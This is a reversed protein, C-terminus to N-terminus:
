VFVETVLVVQYAVILIRAVNRHWLHMAPESHSVSASAVWCWILILAFVRSGWAFLPSYTGQFWAIWSLSWAATYFVLMLWGSWEKGLVHVTTRGRELDAEMDEINVGFWRGVEFLWIFVCLPIITAVDGYIVAGSFPVMASGITSELQGVFPIFKGQVSYHTTLAMMFVLFLGMWVSLVFGIGIGVGFEVTAVAYAPGVGVLGSPVPRYPKNVADVEADLAEHSVDTGACVLAVSLLGWALRFGDVPIGRELTVLLYGVASGLVVLLLMFPRHVMVWGFIRRGVTPTPEM